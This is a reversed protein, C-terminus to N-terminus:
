LVVSGINTCNNLAVMGFIFSWDLVLVLVLSLAHCYVAALFGLWRFHATFIPTLGFMKLRDIKFVSAGNWEM